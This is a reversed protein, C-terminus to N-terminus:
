LLEGSTVMKTDSVFKYGIGHVTVIYQPKKRDTEIKSRISKIYTDISRDYGDYCDQLAFSILQDRSFIRNPAKALTRLLKFETPTLAIEEGNKKVFANQFDIILDGNGFSVPISVLEDSDMRRLVANIKAVVTRPSFPKILYDDAGIRLGELLDAESSKATLMVIPIRSQARMMRCLEEGSLDPLMLDLVALAIEHKQFLEWAYTGDHAVLVSYGDKKLYAELVQTIKVEDDVLLITKEQKM